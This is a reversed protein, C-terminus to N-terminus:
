NATAAVMVCGCVWWAMEVEAGDDSFFFSVHLSSDVALACVCSVISHAISNSCQWHLHIPCIVFCRKLSGVGRWIISLWVALIWTMLKHQRKIAVACEGGILNQYCSTSVSLLILAMFSSKPPITLVFSVDMKTPSARLSPTSSYFGILTAFNDGCKALQQNQTSSPSTTDNIKLYRSRCLVNNPQLQAATKCCCCCCVNALETEFTLIEQSDREAIRADANLLVLVDRVLTRYALRELFLSWSLLM